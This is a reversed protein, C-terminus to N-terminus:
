ESIGWMRLAECWSLDCGEPTFQGASIQVTPTCIRSPSVYLIAARDMGVFAFLDADAAYGNLPKRDHKGFYYAPLKQSATRVTARRNMKVQIRRLGGVDAILDYRLGEGAIFCDFGRRCIDYAVLHEAAHALNRETRFSSGADEADVEVADADDFLPLMM